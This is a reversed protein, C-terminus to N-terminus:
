KRKALWPRPNFPESGQRMEFYLGPGECRPYYGATGIIEGKEVNDGVEVKTKALYAYLSYYQKGHYIIIVQGFGRLIDNFVVKGWSISQVNTRKSLAFGIGEKSPNENQKYSTVIKGDVPWPLYGKLQDMQQTNLVKLKYKLEEIANRIQALQEEKELRKARVERMKKAFNLRKKLLDDKISEIKDVQFAIKGRVKRQQELNLSLQEKQRVLQSLKEQVLSYISKLWTFRRDVEEWTQANSLKREQNRIYLPWINALLQLVNDKNKEIKNELGVYVSKLKKERQHIKELRKNEQKLQLDLEHIQDEIKALEQYLRREKKSLRQLEGKEEKIQERKQSIDKQIEKGQDKFAYSDLSTFLIFSLCIMLYIGGQFDFKM